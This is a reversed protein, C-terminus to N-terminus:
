EKQVKVQDLSELRESTHDLSIKIEQIYDLLAEKDATLQQNNSQLENLAEVAGKLELNLKENFKLNEENSQKLCENENTLVLIQEQYASQQNSTEQILNKISQFETFLDVENIQCDAAIKEILSKLGSSDLQQQQVSKLIALHQKQEEVQKSEQKLLGELEM